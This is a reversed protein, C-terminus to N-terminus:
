RDAARWQSTGGGDLLRELTYGDGLSQQIQSRLTGNVRRDM